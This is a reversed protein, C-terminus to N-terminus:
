FRLEHGEWHNKNAEYLEPNELKEIERSILFASKDRQQQQFFTQPMEAYLADLQAKLQNLQTTM